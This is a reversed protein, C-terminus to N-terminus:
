LWYQKNKISGDPNYELWLGKMEGNVCLGTCFVQGNDYYWKWIGHAQHNSNMPEIYQEKNKM